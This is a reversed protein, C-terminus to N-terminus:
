GIGHLIGGVLRQTGRGLAMYFVEWWCRLASSGLVM